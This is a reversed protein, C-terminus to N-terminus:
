KAKACVVPPRREGGGEGPPCPPEARREAQTYANISMARDFRDVTDSPALRLMM